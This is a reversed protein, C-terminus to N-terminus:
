GTSRALGCLEDWFGPWSKSVVGPDEIEIGPVRLGLLAFAMALRHDHHTRVSAGVPSSPEITMGDPQEHARVGCRVLERVVDGIRDSEKRRIFGIGTIRTPSSAFPAVVALTPVTDSIDAMDTDVGRLVGTSRVSTSVADREVMCGMSALLDVFAADGQLSSAGLGLVTVDGGCIAAAGFLYSASSADPEITLDAAQYRGAPVVIRDEAISVGSVGFSGMVAATMEVYPRSVLPTTLAIDLGGALYPGILMLATVFQSSVDGALAIRGGHLDGAAIVVPLRGAGDSATVVAGLTVLADHLPGMPRARLPPDGDITYPGPGLAALATVFRSTTGALGAHLLLPGPRLSGGTGEVAVVMSEGDSVRAGLTAICRLMAVTDDGGPLNRLSSRGEALAACVLARNAISKSGPISDVLAHLPGTVPEVRRPQATNM